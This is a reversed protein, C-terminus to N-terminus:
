AHFFFDQLVHDRRADVHCLLLLIVPVMVDHPAIRVEALLPFPSFSSESRM